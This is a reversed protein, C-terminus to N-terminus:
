VRAVSRVPRLFPSWSLATPRACAPLVRHLGRATHEALRRRWIAHQCVAAASNGGAHEELSRPPVSRAAYRPCPPARQMNTPVPPLARLPLHVDTYPTPRM